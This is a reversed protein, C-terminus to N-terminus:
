SALSSQCLTCLTIPRRMHVEHAEVRIGETTETLTLLV